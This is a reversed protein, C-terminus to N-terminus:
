KGTYWKVLAAIVWSLLISYMNRNTHAYKYNSQQPMLWHCWFEVLLDLSIRWQQTPTDAFHMWCEAWRTTYLIVRTAHWCLKDTFKGANPFRQFRFIPCLCIVIVNYLHHTERERSYDLSMTPWQTVWKNKNIFFNTCHLKDWFSRAHGLM